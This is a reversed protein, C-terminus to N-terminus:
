LYYLEEADDEYTGHPSEDDDGRCEHANPLRAGPPGVSSVSIGSFIRGDSINTLQGSYEAMKGFFGDLLDGVRDAQPDHKREFDKTREIIVEDPLEQKTM